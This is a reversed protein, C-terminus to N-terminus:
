RIVEDARLLLSQPITLDLAKATKLNIVLEFKTPQEIPLDGPKAGKLIKDVYIAPLAYLQRVNGGYSMLGGADVYPRTLFITPIKNKIALEAIKERQSAYPAGGLVILAGADEKALSAFAKELDELSGATTPVLTIGASKAADQMVKLQPPHTPNNSMLVAARPSKPAIARVMEIAKAALEIGFDAVGTINGGPHALSSVIGSGVPDTVFTFVIPITATAQRAALAANTTLAFIVDPKLAVLEAALGPLRDIKGEAYRIDFVINQGELHGLANLKQKFAETQVGGTGPAGVSLWGIRYAKPPAQAGADHVGGVSWFGLGLFFALVAQRLM